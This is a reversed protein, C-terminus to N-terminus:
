SNPNDFEVSQLEAFVTGVFIQAEIRLLIRDSDDSVWITARRFKKHPELELNKGVKNLHLDIKIARYNGAHVSITEHGVVTLTALYAATAPYVVIRYVSGDSLSQSRLYLAASHMDFLNSFDYQKTSPGSASPRENRTRKVGISTFALQTILKKRRYSEIQKMEIPRLTKADALARHNVDLKWLARVFGITGGTGTFEFRSLEPHTFHVQGAGATFGAWGFRYTAQVPRLPPFNGPPDKTITSPWAPAAASVAIWALNLLLALAIQPRKMEQVVFCV